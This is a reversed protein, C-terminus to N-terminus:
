LLKMPKKYIQQTTRPIVVTAYRAFSDALCLTGDNSKVNTKNVTAETKPYKKAPNLRTEDDAYVMWSQSIDIPAPNPPAM